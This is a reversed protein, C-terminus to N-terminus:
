LSKLLDVNKLSVAGISAKKGKKYVKYDMLMALINFFATVLSLYGVKIM